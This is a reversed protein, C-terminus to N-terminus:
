LARSIRLCLGILVLLGVVTWGTGASFVLEVKGWAEWVLAELAAIADM